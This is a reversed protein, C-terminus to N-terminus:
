ASFLDHQRAYAAAETRNRVNLRRYIQKTHWRVTEEAIVLLQAIEHNSLGSALLELVERQRPTLPEALAIETVEGAAPMAPWQDEILDLLRRAYTRVSQEEAEQRALERLLASIVPGEEVFLRVYRGPQALTLARGMSRRATQGEGLLQKARAQLLSTEIVAATLGATQAFRQWRDVIPLAEAAGSRGRALLTRALTLDVLERPVSFPTRTGDAAGVGDAVELEAAAQRALAMAMTNNKQLLAYRAQWASVRAIEVPLQHRHAIAHAEELAGAAEEHNGQAQQVHAMLTYANVTSVAEGSAECLGVARTALERAEAPRNWEHALTALGLVASGLLAPEDEGATDGAVPAAEVLRLMRRYIAEAAPLQAQRRRLEALLYLASGTLYCHGATEGHVVAQQLASQAEQVQGMMFYADGLIYAAICRIAPAASERLTALARGSIEAMAAFNGKRQAVTARVLALNCRQAEIDFPAPHIRELEALQREAARLYKEVRQGEGGIALVWAYGACFNHRALIAEEPLLELFRRIAMLKGRPFFGCLTRQVLDAACKTDGAALAHRVAQEQFGNAEYWVSARLHLAPVEDAHRQELQRRLFTHFLHHYRFWCGEEDLPVLFLSRDVLNKLLGQSEGSSQNGDRLVAECLPSCLRDLVSTLLLFRRVSRPQRHLVEAALYDFVYAHGQEFSTLFAPVDGRHAAVLPSRSALAALQLGAIWGETHRDLSSIAEAPLGLAMVDNIFDGTEEMTFRLDAARIEVLEDAARLRWLPLPPDGRGSIILHLNAPLHDVLLQMAEHVAGAQLLHYDDLVLILEGMAGNLENLLGTMLVGPPPRRAQELMATLPKGFRADHQRFAAILYSLFRVLDDDDADLAVWAIRFGRKSARTLHGPLQRLWASLLSTKGYGAPASILAMRRQLLENLRAYLRPRAVFQERVPPAILKTQLIM